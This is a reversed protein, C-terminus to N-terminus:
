RLPAVEVGSVVEESQNCSEFYSLGVVYGLEADYTIRPYGAALDLYHDVADFLKPVTWATANSPTVVPELGARVAVQAKVNFQSYTLQYDVVGSAQWTARAEALTKQLGYCASTL